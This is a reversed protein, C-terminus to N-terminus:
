QGLTLLPRHITWGLDGRANVEGWVEAWLAQFFGRRWVFELRGIRRTYLVRVQIVRGIRACRNCCYPPGMGPPFPTRVRQEPRRHCECEPAACHGESSSGFGM